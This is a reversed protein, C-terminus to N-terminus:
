NNTKLEEIKQKLVDEKWGAYPKKGRLEEYEARLSKIDSESITSVTDKPEEKPKPDAVKHTKGRGQTKMSEIVAELEALKKQEPTLDKEPAAMAAEVEAKIKDSIDIEKYSFEPRTIKFGQANKRGTDIAEMTQEVVKEVDLRTHNLRGWKLYNIWSGSGYVLKVPQNESTVKGNADYNVRGKYARLTVLLTKGEM